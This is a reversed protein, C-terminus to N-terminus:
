RPRRQARVRVVFEPVTRHLRDLVDDVTMPPRSLDAAQRELADAIRGPAREHLDCLFADPHIVPIGFPACADAPFHRLNLMIITKAEDSAVAAALVHRDGPDNAMETELVAVEAAAIEADPFARTM